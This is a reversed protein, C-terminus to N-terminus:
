NTQEDITQKVTHIMGRYIYHPLCRQLLLATKATSHPSLQRIAKVHFKISADDDAYM